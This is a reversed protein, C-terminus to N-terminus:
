AGFSPRSALWPCPKLESRTPPHSVMPWRLLGANERGEPRPAEEESSASMSLTPYGVQRARVVYCNNLSALRPKYGQAKLQEVYAAIAKDACYEVTKTLDDRNKVSVQVKARNEISAM